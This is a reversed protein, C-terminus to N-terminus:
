SINASTEIRVELPHRLGKETHESGNLDTNGWHFRLERLVYTYPLGGDSISIETHDPIDLRVLNRANISM